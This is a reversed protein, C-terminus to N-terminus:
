QNDTSQSSEYVYAGDFNCIWTKGMLPLSFNLHGQTLDSSTTEFKFSDMTYGPMPVWIDQNNASAQYQKPEVNTDSIMYGTKTYEVPLDVLAFSIAPMMSIFKANYFYIDVTKLDKKFLVRYKIDNTTFPESGEGMAIVTTRGAFVADPMFTKVTYDYDATYSMVLPLKTKDFQYGFMTNEEPTLTNRISSEYGKLNTVQIGADSMGGSFSSVNGDTYFETKLEMPATKFNMSGYGLSLDTTNAVLTQSIPYVTLSYTASTAFPQGAEPIVLNCCAYTITRYSDQDDTDLNCSSFGLGLAAM